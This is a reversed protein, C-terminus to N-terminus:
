LGQTEEDNEAGHVITALYECFAVVDHSKQKGPREPPVCSRAKASEGSSGM